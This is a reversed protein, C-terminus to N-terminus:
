FLRLRLSPGQMGSHSTIPLNIPFIVRVSAQWHRQEHSESKGYNCVRARDPDKSSLGPEVSGVAFLYFTPMSEDDQKDRM